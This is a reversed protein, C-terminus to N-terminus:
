QSWEMPRQLDPVYACRQGTKIATSLHYGLGPHQAAIRKVMERIRKTVALRAREPNTITKDNPAGLAAMLDGAAISEGPRALLQALYRMGKAGRIRVVAGDYAVTWYEGERRFVCGLNMTMGVSGVRSASSQPTRNQANRAMGRDGWQETVFFAFRHSTRFLRKGGPWFQRRVDRSAHIRRKGERPMHGLSCGAMRHTTRLPDDAGGCPVYISM